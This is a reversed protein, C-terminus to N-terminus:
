DEIVGAGDGPLALEPVQAFHWGDATRTLTWVVDFRDDPWESPPPPSVNPFAAAIAPIEEHQWSILAPGPGALVHRVLTKEEGSGFDTDVAVGLHDALPAVTERTRTGEGDDTAGAAYIAVPRALGPRTPGQAPDFLDVLRHAREWGTATLSGSDRLGDADVGPANGDPKEGHRVIMVLDPPGTRAAASLGTSPARSASVAGAPGPTPGPGGRCVGPTALATFAAVVAITRLAFRATWSPRGTPNLGTNM